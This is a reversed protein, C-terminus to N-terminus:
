SLSLMCLTVVSASGLTLTCIVDALLCVSLVATVLRLLGSVMLLWSCSVLLVNTM